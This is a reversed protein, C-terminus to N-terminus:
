ATEQLPLRAGGQGDRRVDLVLYRQGSEDLVLEDDIEPPTDMDSLQVDLVPGITSIEARGTEDHETHEDVFVGRTPFSQGAQPHYTVAVGFTNQAITHARERM